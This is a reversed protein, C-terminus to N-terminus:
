GEFGTPAPKKNKGSSKKKKKKIPVEPAADASKEVDALPQDPANPEHHPTPPPPHVEPPTKIGELAALHDHHDEHDPRLNLLEEATYRPGSEHTVTPRRLSTLDLESIRRSLEDAHVGIFTAM